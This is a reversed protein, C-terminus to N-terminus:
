ARELQRDRGDDVEIAKESATCIEDFAAAVQEFEPYAARLEAGQTRHSNFVEPMTMGIRRLALGGNLIHTLKPTLKDVYRVFRAEPLKQQEYADVLEVLFPFGALDRRVRVLAEAEAQEKAKLKASGLRRATNTDGAYAECLDHVLAFCAVLGSDLSGHEYAMASALLGLMVTHTADGEPEGDPHLTARDVRGFRLALRALDVARGTLEGGPDPEAM